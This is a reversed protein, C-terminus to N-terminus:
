FFNQEATAEDEGKGERWSAAAAAVLSPLDALNPAVGDPRELMWLIMARLFDRAAATWHANNDGADQILAEAIMAADDILDLAEGAKLDALPDYSSRLAQPVDSVRWPDIVHVNHKLTDARFEATQSALEGKPDIVLISGPYLYLNPMLLCATKGSRAGAVTIVHRNDARGIMEQDVRGLFMRGARYALEESDMIEDLTHFTASPLSQAGTFPLSEEGLGRPPDFVTPPRGPRLRM